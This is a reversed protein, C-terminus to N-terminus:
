PLGTPPAPPTELDSVRLQEGARYRDFREQTWAEFEAFTFAKFALAKVGAFWILQEIEGMQEFAEIISANMDKASM